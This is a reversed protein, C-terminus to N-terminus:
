MPTGKLMAMLQALTITRGWLRKAIVSLLGTVHRLLERMFEEDSM